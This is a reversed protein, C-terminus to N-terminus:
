SENIDDTKFLKAYYTIKVDYGLLGEAGQQLTDCYLHWCWSITPSATYAAALNSDEPIDPYMRRTSTYLSMKTKGNNDASRLVLTRSGPLRCLDDVGTYTPNVEARFPFMVLRIQTAVATGGLKLTPYLTIKSAYVRYRSFATGAGACLQDFGYPQVGAGTLDPDFLSNGRWVQHGQYAPFAMTSSFDTDNYVFRYRAQQPIPNKWLAGFRPIKPYRGKKRYMRRVGRRKRYSPRAKPVSRRTSRRRVYPM